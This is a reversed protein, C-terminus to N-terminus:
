APGETLADGPRPAAPGEALASALQEAETDDPHDRLWESLSDRGDAARGIMGLLQAYLLVPRRGVAALPVTELIEVARELDGCQVAMQAMFVGTHLRRITEHSGHNTKFDALALMATSPFGLAYAVRARELCVLPQTVPLELLPLAALDPRGSAVHLMARVLEGPADDVHRHLSDPYFRRVVTRAVELTRAEMRELVDTTLADVGVRHAALEVVRENLFAAYTPPTPVALESAFHAARQDAAAHLLAVWHGAITVELIRSRIRRRAERFVPGLEDRYYRAAEALAANMQERDGESCALEAQRLWHVAAQQSVEAAWAAADSGGHEGIEVLADRFRSKAILESVKRSRARVPLVGDGGSTRDSSVHTSFRDLWSM